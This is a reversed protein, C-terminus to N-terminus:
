LQKKKKKIKARCRGEPNYLPKVIYVINWDSPRVGLMHWDMSEGGEGAGVAGPLGM